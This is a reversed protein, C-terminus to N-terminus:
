LINNLTAFHIKYGKPQFKFDTEPNEVSYLKGDVVVLDDVQLDVSDDFYKINMSTLPVINGKIYQSTSGSVSGRLMFPFSGAYYYANKQYKAISAIQPFITALVQSFDFVDYGNIKIECSANKIDESCKLVITTIIYDESINEFVTHTANPSISSTSLTSSHTGYQYGIDVSINSSSTNKITVSGNGAKIGVYIPNYQSRYGSVSPIQYILASVIYEKQPISSFTVWQSNVRTSYYEFCSEKYKYIASADVNVITANAPVDQANIEIFGMKITSFLWYKNNSTKYVYNTTESDVIQNYRRYVLARQNLTTNKPKLKM